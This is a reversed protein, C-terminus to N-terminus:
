SPSSAGRLFREARGARGPRAPTAAAHRRPRPDRRAAPAGSTFFRQLAVDEARYLLVTRAPAGDRGARGIEQLYSDPSDPLALHVVWRIDPKDIGMGFASTAVMVPIDGALFEEHRRTRVAAALGGHYHAARHGADVLRQALEEAARRTPVYVIGAGPVESSCTWCGAGGTTRRDPLAPGDLFLNPRDLGTM